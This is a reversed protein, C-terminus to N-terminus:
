KASVQLSITVNDGLVFSSGGVNFDRRNVKFDGSFVYGNAQPTATFPFNIDKTTGKITLKGYVKYTNSNGSKEIKTSVFSLRPYKAVNFYEEKRLHNDRSDVDTDVSSADVSVDISAMTLNAPSFNIRGQLGKFTGGTAIGFNKISFSVKSEKDVPTLQQAKTNVSLSLSFAIILIYVRM